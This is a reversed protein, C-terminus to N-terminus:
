YDREIHSIAYKDSFSIGDRELHQDIFDTNEHGIWLKHGNHIAIFAHLNNSSHIWSIMESITLPLDAKEWDWFKGLNIAKICDLCVSYYLSGM